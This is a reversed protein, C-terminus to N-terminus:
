YGKKLYFNVDKLIKVTTGNIKKGYEDFIYKTIHKMELIKEM